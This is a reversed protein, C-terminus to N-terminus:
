YLVHKCSLLCWPIIIGSFDLWVYVVKRKYDLYEWHDWSNSELIVCTEQVTHFSSPHEFPFSRPQRFFGSQPANISLGCFIFVKYGWSLYERWHWSRSEQFSRQLFTQPQPVELMLSFMTPVGPYYNLWLFEQLIQSAQTNTAWDHGVRQSGMSQLFLCFDTSTLRQSAPERGVGLSWQRRNECGQKMGERSYPHLLHSAELLCFTACTIPGQKCSWTIFLSHHRDQAEHKGANSVRHFGKIM